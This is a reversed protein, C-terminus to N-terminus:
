NFSEGQTSFCHQRLSGRDNFACKPLHGAYGPIRIASCLYIIGCM